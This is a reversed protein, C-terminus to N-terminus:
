DVLNNLLKKADEISTEDAKTDTTGLAALEADYKANIVKVNNKYEKTNEIGSPTEIGQFLM